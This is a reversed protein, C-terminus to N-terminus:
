KQTVRQHKHNFVSHSVTTRFFPKRYGYKGMVFGSIFAVPVCMYTLIYKQLRGAKLSFTLIVNTGVSGFRGTQRSNKIFVWCNGVYGRKRPPARYAFSRSTPERWIPVTEEIRGIVVVVTM